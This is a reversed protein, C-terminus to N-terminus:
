IEKRGGESDKKKPDKLRMSEADREIQLLVEIHVALM